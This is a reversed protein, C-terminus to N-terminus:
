PIPAPTVAEIVTSPTLSSSISTPTAARLVAVSHANVDITIPELDDGLRFTVGRLDEDSRNFVHYEGAGLPVVHLRLAHHMHPAIEDVAGVLVRRDEQFTALREFVRDADDRLRLKGGRRELLTRDVFKGSSAWTDLYTHALLLGHADALADLNRESFRSLFRKRSIFFWASNFLLAGPAFSPHAYVAVRRDSPSRTALMDLRGGVVSVDHVAWLIDVGADRLIDLIFYDSEPDSGANALAECNREPGHDIWARPTPFDQRYTQILAATEGPTDTLGTVSHLSVHAGDAQLRKALALFESDDLQKAYSGRKKVFVSDSIGLGRAILGRRPPDDKSLAEEHGYMLATTRATSAQDAHDTFSIASQFGDRFRMPTPLPANDLVVRWSYTAVEGSERSTMDNRVHPLQADDPCAGYKKHPHHSTHDLELRATSQGKGVEVLVGPADPADLTPTHEGARWWVRRPTHSPIYHDRQISTAAYAHDLAVASTTPLTFTVAEEIVSVARKYEIQAHYEIVRQSSSGQIRLTFKATPAEHITEIEWGGRSTDIHPTLSSTKVTITKHNKYNLTITPALSVLPDDGVALLAGDRWASLTAPTSTTADSSPKPCAGTNPSLTLIAAVTLWSYRHRALMDRRETDYCHIGSYM